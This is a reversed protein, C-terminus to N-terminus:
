RKGGGKAPLSRAFAVGQRIWGSLQEETRVAASGVMVWGKMPRGTMDFPRVSPQDLAEEYREPGLRVILDDGHVGRAMNGDIMFGVGGFMKKETFGGIRQLQERARRALGEDYPM